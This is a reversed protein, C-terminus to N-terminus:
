PKTPSRFFQKFLPFVSNTSTAPKLTTFSTAETTASSTTIEETTASTGTTQTVPEDNSPRNLNLGFVNSIGNQVNSGFQGVVGQAVGTANNWSNQYNNILLQVPNSTTSESGSAAEDNSPRNPLSSLLGNPINTGLQNTIGQVVNSANSLTSQSSNILGPVPNPLPDNQAGASPETTTSSPILFFSQASSDFGPAGTLLQNIINPKDGPKYTIVPKYAFTADQQVPPKPNALNNVTQNLDIATQPVLWVSSPPYNSSSQDPQTNGIGIPSAGLAIVAKDVNVESKTSSKEVLTTEGNSQVSRIVVFVVCCYLLIVQM